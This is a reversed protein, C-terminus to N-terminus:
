GTPSTQCRALPPRSRGPQARRLQRERGTTAGAPYPLVVRRAFNPRPQDADTQKARARRGLRRRRRTGASCRPRSEGRRAAGARPTRRTTPGLPDMPRLADRTEPARQGRELARQHEHEVIQVGDGVRGTQVHERRQELVDGGARLDRRLCPLAPVAAQGSAPARAPARSRRPPGGAPRAPPRAAAPLQRRRARRRAFKGLQGLPRFAPGGAQVEGRQRHLGPRRPRRAGRAEGAVVPEHGLVEARAGTAAAPRRPAIEELVGRHQLAHGAPKAVGHELRRPRCM